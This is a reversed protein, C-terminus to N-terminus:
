RPLYIILYEWLADDLLGARLTVSEKLLRASDESRALVGLREYCEPDLFTLTVPASEPHRCASMSMVM